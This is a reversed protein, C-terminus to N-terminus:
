RKAFANMFNIHHMSGIDWVDQYPWSQTLVKVGNGGSFAGLYNVTNIPDM